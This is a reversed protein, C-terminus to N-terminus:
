DSLYLKQKLYEIEVQVLDPLGAELKMHTNFDPEEVVKYVLVEQESVINSSYSKLVTVRVSYSLNISQGHYSEHPKGVGVFRFPFTKNEPLSGAVEIEKYLSIFEQSNGKCEVKGILELTIGEHDLKKGSTLVIEAAGAIDEDPLVVPLLEGKYNTVNSSTIKIQIEASAGFGFFEM